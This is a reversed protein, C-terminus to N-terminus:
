FLIRHKYHRLATKYNRGMKTEDPPCQPRKRWWCNGLRNKTFRSIRYERITAAAKTPNLLLQEFEAPDYNIFYYDSTSITEFDRKCDAYTPSKPM